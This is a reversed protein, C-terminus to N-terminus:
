RPTSKEVFIEVGTTTEAANVTVETSSIQTFGPVHSELIYKGPPVDQLTFTGQPDRSVTQTVLLRPKGPEAAPAYLIVVFEPLPEDASVKGSVAGARKLILVINETNPEISRQILLSYGSARAALAVKDGSLGSLRFRGEADTTTVSYSAVDTSSVTAGTIPKGDESLVTGSVFAGRSLVFDIGETKRGQIVDVNQRTQSIYGQAIVRINATRSDLGTLRYKGESNTLCGRAPLVTNDRAALFIQANEVSKGTESDTITGSVEGGLELLFKTQATKEAEVRISHKDSPLYEPHNALAEYDGPAIGEISFKGETDTFALKPDRWIDPFSEGEQSQRLTYIRVQVGRVPEGQFTTVQGCFSGGKTLVINVSAVQADKPVTVQRRGGKAFGKLEAVVDYTGSPVSLALYCGETDTSASSVPSVGRMVRVLACALPSGQSDYVKGSISGKEEKPPSEPSLDYKKASIHQESRGTTATRVEAHPPRSAEAHLPQSVEPPPTPHPTFPPRAPQPRLAWIVVFTLVAVSVAATAAYFRGPHNV